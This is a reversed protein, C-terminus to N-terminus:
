GILNLTKDGHIIMESKFRFLYDSIVRRTKVGKNEILLNSIRNNAVLALTNKFGDLTYNSSIAIRLSNKMIHNIEAKMIAVTKDGVVVGHDEFEGESTPIDGFGIFGYAGKEVSHKAIDSNSNCALCIVKKNKFVVANAENIFNDNYYNYGEEEAIAESEYLKGFSDAKSGFLKDSRGHGFFLVLENNKYSALKELCQTHSDENPEVSLQTVIDGFTSVTSKVIKNLFATTKDHPHM